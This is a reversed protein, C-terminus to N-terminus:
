SGNLHTTATIAATNWAAPAARSFCRQVFKLGHSSTATVAPPGFGDMLVSQHLRLSLTQSILHHRISIFSTCKHLCLNYFIRYQVPLPPPPTCYDRSRTSRSTSNSNGSYEACTATASYLPSKPYVRLFQM